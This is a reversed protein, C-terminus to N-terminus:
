HYAGRRKLFFAALLVGITILGLSTQVVGLQETASSILGKLARTRGSGGEGDPFTDTFVAFGLWGFLGLAIAAQVYKMDSM